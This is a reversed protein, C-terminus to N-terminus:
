LGTVECRFPPSPGGGGRRDSGRPRSLLGLRVSGVATWGKDGTGTDTTADNDFLGRRGGAGLGADLRM